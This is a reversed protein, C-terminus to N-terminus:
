WEPRYPRTCDAGHIADELTMGQYIGFASSPLQSAPRKPLPDRHVRKNSAVDSQRSAMECDRERDRVRVPRSAIHYDDASAVRNASPGWASNNRAFLFVAGLGLLLGGGGGGALITTRSPGVPHVGTEVGDIRSIVSASRAGAQQARADALNKRAAEVLRTHNQVSALLRAYEARGAALRSVRQRGAAWRASLAAERDANLEVDVQLARIAVAIEDHLQKRLRQEAERAAVVFPHKQSRSGLLSATHVEAAVIAQKLQAVAPQSQLLSGPTALLQQPDDKAELLLSLLRENERGQANNARREAEIAQLEQSVEGQSGIEANLNRLEALDAGIQTEFASLRVTRNALDHEAMAVTRELEVVMGQARLDRIEQMREVLQECLVTALAGARRRDTDHVSLYFVETKGFEAGGPPRMDICERFEEVDIPTPWHAPRRYSAPPGVECLTAHIVGQSKALELITEQLTKMESLDSFEGLPQESVSAAEPRIILAQTAQWQRPSVFSYAAALVACVVTPIAWWRIHTRFLHVLELLDLPADTTDQPRFDPMGPM